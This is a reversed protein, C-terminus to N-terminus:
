SHNKFKTLYKQIEISGPCFQVHRIRYKEPICHPVNGKQDPVIM